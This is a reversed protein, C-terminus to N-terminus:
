DGEDVSGLVSDLKSSDISLTIDDGESGVYIPFDGVPSFFSSFSSTGSDPAAEFFHMRVLYEGPGPVFLKEKAKGRSSFEGVQLPQPVGERALMFGYKKGRYRGLEPPMRLVFSLAKEMTVVQDATVNLLTVPRYGRASIEIKEFGSGTTLLTEGGATISSGSRRNGRSILCNADVLQGASDQVTLHIGKLMGRLDLPQLAPPELVQGPLFTLGDLTFLEEHLRTRAVFQYAPGVEGDCQFTYQGPVDSQALGIHVNRIGPSSLQFSLLHLSTNEDLLIAGSLSGAQTLLFELGQSGAPVEQSLREFGDAQITVKYTAVDAIEGYLVFEGKRDSEVSLGSGFNSSITLGGGGDLSFGGENQAKPKIPQVRISAGAIGEGKENLVKGSLRAQASSFTIEGLDNGGPLLPNQITAEARSAGVEPLEATFVGRRASVFEAEDARGMEIQFRGNENITVRYQGSRERNGMTRFSELECDQNALVNGEQDLLVGTLKPWNTAQLEAEVWEGVQQPGDLTIHDKNRGETQEFSATLLVGLGIFPFEVMGNVVEKELHQDTPTGHTWEKSHISVAGPTSVPLGGEDIVRIRVGGAEPLTLTVEGKELVPETLEIREPEQGPAPKVPVEIRAYFKTPGGDKQTLMSISFFQARGEADTRRIPGVYFRSYFTYQIAVPVGAVPNGDSDVVQAILPYLPRVTLSYEKMGPKLGSESGILDDTEAAIFLPKETPPMRTFGTDDARYRRGHNRLISVLHHADTDPKITNRIRWFSDVSLVYIDAHPVANGSRSDIASLLVGDDGEFRPQIPLESTRASAEVPQTVSVDKSRVAEQENALPAAQKPLDEVQSHNTSDAEIPEVPTSDEPQWIAFIALVVLLFGAALYIKSRPM